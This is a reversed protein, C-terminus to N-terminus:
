SPYSTSSFGLPTEFGFVAKHPTCKIGTHHSHKKKLQVFNIGVSWKTSKNEIMWIELKKKIDANAREVSGQSQPHRARGHVFSVDPWMSKFSLLIQNRFERGNDSQLLYPEGLISFVDMIASAVEIAMKARLPRLQIFKTFHDQYVMLWKYEGYPLTQMDILDM